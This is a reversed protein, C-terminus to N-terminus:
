ESIVEDLLKLVDAKKTAKRDNFLAVSFGSREVLEATVAKKTRLSAGLERQAAGVAGILCYSDYERGNVWRKSHLAGKQWGYPRALLERARKVLRTRATDRM